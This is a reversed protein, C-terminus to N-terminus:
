YRTLFTKKRRCYHFSVPTLPIGDGKM